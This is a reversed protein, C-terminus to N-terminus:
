VVAVRICFGSNLACLQLFLIVCTLHLCIVIFMEHFFHKQLLPFFLLVLVVFVALFLHLLLFLFFLLSSLWLFNSSFVLAPPSCSFISSYSSFIHLFSKLHFSFLVPARPSSHYVSSSYHLSLLSLIVYCEPAYPIPVSLCCTYYHLYFFRFFLLWLTFSSFL